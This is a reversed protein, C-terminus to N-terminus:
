KKTKFLPLNFQDGFFSQTNHRHTLKTLCFYDGFAKSLKEM